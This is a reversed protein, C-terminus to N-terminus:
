REWKLRPYDHGERIRWVGDFDWGLDLYTDLSMMDATTRGQTASADTLVGSSQVDWVSSEVRDGQWIFGVLGGVDYTGSVVGTSCSRTVHGACRGVLGGVESTGMVTGQNYCDHVAGGQSLGTLGGVSLMGFVTGSNQCEFIDGSDKGSLGGV